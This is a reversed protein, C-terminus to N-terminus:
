WFHGSNHMKFMERSDLTPKRWRLLLVPELMIGATVGRFSHSGMKKGRLAIM